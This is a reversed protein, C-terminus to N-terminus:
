IEKLAVWPLINTKNEINQIVKPPIIGKNQKLYNESKILSISIQNRVNRGGIDSVRPRLHGGALKEKTNSLIKRMYIYIYIYIYYHVLDYQFFYGIEM